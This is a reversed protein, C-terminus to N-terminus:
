NQDIETLNSDDAHSIEDDRPRFNLSREPFHYLLLIVSSNSFNCNSLQFSTTLFIDNIDIIKM